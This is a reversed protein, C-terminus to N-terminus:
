QRGVDFVVFESNAHRIGPLANRGLVQRVQGLPKVAGIGRADSGLAAGPQAERDALANDVCVTSRETEDAGDSDARDYGHGQGIAVVDGRELAGLFHM